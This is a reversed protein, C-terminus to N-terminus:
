NYAKRWGAERAAEESCFWREGNFYSVRTQSYYEQGPVHYIREGTNHSINGKINCGPILAVYESVGVLAIAAPM